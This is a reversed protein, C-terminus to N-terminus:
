DQPLGFEPPNIFKNSAFTVNKQIVEYIYYKGIDADMGNESRGRVVYDMGRSATYNYPNFNRSVFKM